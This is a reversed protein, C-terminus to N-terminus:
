FYFILLEYEHLFAIFSFSIDIIRLSYHRCCKDGKSRAPPQQRHEFVATLYDSKTTLLIPEQVKHHTNSCDKSEM